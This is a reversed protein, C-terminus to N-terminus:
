ARSFSAAQFGTTAYSKLLANYDVGNEFDYGRISKTGEAIQSSSAFVAASAIAPAGTSSDNTTEITNSM